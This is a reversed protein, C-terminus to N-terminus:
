KERVWARQSLSIEDRANEMIKNNKNNKSFIVLEEKSDQVARPDCM